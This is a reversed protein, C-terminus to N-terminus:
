EAPVAAVPATDQTSPTPKHQNRFFREATEDLPYMLEVRLEDLTVEAIPDFRAVMAITRVVEDGVRFWPCVALSPEATSPRAVGALVSEAVAVLHHLEQDFPARDLHHRLRDLGAWAVEPWNVIAQAAAPNALSDRVFNSGVVQRGFLVSCARNALIVNWHRDIVMAPYPEHVALMRDIAARYPALDAGDLAAQPYTGPLGAAHLLENSERLGVDLADAVRLVMQRSPRSRGTELFSVHRATSGVQGALGLQSLGRHRRWHRLRAGFPSTSAVPEDNM